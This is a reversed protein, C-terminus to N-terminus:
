YALTFGINPGHYVCDGSHDIQTPGLSLINFNTNLNESALAVGSLWYANYGLRMSLNTTVQHNYNLSVEGLFATRDHSDTGVFNSVVTGSGNAGQFASRLEAENDYIGGKVEFDIWGNEWYTAFQSMMGIQVGFMDNNTNILARNVTGVGAPLSSQTVYGFREDMQLYRLGVLFSNAVCHYRRYPWLRPRNCLRRRLNVEFSSISSEMEISAYNNYDLGVIGAPIGFNSFPSFLNGTGGLENADLNRVAKRDSWEYDGLFATELRYLDTLAAGLVIRMGADFETDLDGTELVAPGGFSLTQFVPDQQQDRFLPMVEVTAFVLPASSYQCNACPDYGCADEVLDEYPNCWFLNTGRVGCGGPMLAAGHLGPSTGAGNCTNCSQTYYAAPQADVGPLRFPPNDTARLEAAPSADAFESSVLQGAIPQTCALILVCALWPMGPVLPFRRIVQIM